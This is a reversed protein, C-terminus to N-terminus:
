CYEASDPNDDTNGTIALMSAFSIGSAIGFINGLLYGSTLKDLFFIFHWIDYYLCSNYGGEQKQHFFVASIILLFAPASYQLVIANAATTLKNAAIFSIFTSSLAIGGLLSFKNIIFSKKEYRMYLLFVGAAIFSRISAIAMVPWPLLKILIGALSWLGACIVMLLIARSKSDNSM